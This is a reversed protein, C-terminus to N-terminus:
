FMDAFYNLIIWALAGLIMLTSIIIIKVKKTIKKSIIVVLGIVFLIIPVIFKEISFAKEIPTEIGYATQIGYDTQIDYPSLAFVKSIMSLFFVQISVLIKKIRSKM